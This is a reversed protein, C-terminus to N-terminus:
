QSIVAHVFSDIQREIEDKLALSDIWERPIGDIGYWLGALGGAVMGTTDTDLGLNVATLLIDKNSKGNLFCWLGSELTDVVYGSSSIEDKSLGKLKGSLIRDYHHLESRFRQRCGYYETAAAMAHEFAEMKSDHRILERVFLAYIGCGLLARPHGHTISSIDHIVQLFEDEPKAHFYIAPPLMRMLSGNGNDEEGDCGCKSLECDGTRYRELAMFTTLGSDFVYGTATWKSEFLWQCFTQAIDNLDYGKTLSEMTCLVMSSDDSWTGEPQDYRGYGLLNKVECLSLDERSAQEVPVGLADGVIGSMLAAKLRLHLEM